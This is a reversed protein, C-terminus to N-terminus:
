VTLLGVDVEGIASLVVADEFEGLAPDGTRSFAIPEAIDRRRPSHPLWESQKSQARRKERIALLLSSTRFCPFGTIM